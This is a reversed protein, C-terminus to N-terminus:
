EDAAPEVVLRVALRHRHHRVLDAAPDQPDLVEIGAPRAGFEVHFALVLLMQECNKLPIVLLFM